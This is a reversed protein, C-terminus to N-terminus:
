DIAVKKYVEHDRAIKNRYGFPSSVEKYEKFPDAMIIVHKVHPSDPDQGSNSAKIEASSSVARSSSVAANCPATETTFHRLKVTLGRTCVKPQEQKSKSKHKYVHAMICECIFVANTAHV